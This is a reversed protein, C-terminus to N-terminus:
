RPSAGTKSRLAGPSKLATTSAPRGQIGTTAATTSFSASPALQRLLLWRSAKGSAGPQAGQWKRTQRFPVLDSLARAFFSSSAVFVRKGESAHSRQVAAGGAAPKLSWTAGDDLSYHIFATEWRRSCRYHIEFNRSGKGGRLSMSASVATTATSQPLCGAGALPSASSRSTPARLTMVAATPAGDSTARAVLLGM